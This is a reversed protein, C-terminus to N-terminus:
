PEVPDNLSNPSTPIHLTGMALVLGDIVGLWYPRGADHEHAKLNDRAHQLEYKLVETSGRRVIRQVRVAAGGKVSLRKPEKM